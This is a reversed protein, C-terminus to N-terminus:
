IKLSGIAKQRCREVIEELDSASFCTESEHVVLDGNPLIDYRQARVPQKPANIQDLVKAQEQPERIKNEAFVVRVEAPTLQQIPKEVEVKKGQHLQVVKVPKEYFEKQQSYPLTLLRRAGPSSDFLLAGYIQGRGIREVTRLMDHSARSDVEQLIQYARPQRDVFAVFRKAAQEITERGIQLLGLIEIADSRDKSSIQLQSNM